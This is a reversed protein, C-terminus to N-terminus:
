QYVPMWCGTIARGGFAPQMASRERLHAEGDKRMVTHANFARQMPTNPDNSSFLTPNDKVARTHVAKTLMIRRVAQVRLVPSERRLGQYIPYPDDTLAAISIETDLPALPM